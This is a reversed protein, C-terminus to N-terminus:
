SVINSNPVPSASTLKWFSFPSGSITSLAVINGGCLKIPVISSMVLFFIISFLGNSNFYLSVIFLSDAESFM